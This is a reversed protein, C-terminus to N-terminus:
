RAGESAPEPKPRALERVEFMSVVPLYRVFLLMATLFLGISGLFTAYDWFTPTYLRSASPLFDHHLTVVVIMFRELWMGVVVLSSILVLALPSRRVAKFWLPQIAVVNCGVVGWWSWAYPGFFRASTLQEEFPEGGYWGIFLEMAYGYGTAIGTGLLVKALLELHADTVIAQLGFAHRLTVAILSVVAFGSFVAGLVFFPPLVTGHWGPEVSAAFLLGVGSHVSVVLPVALAALITYAQRWAAWHAATGRWGLAFIGYVQRRRRGGGGERLPSDRLTALDPIMGVYWFTASLLLYIIIATADWLLPSRFQPWLLMTNPYPLNWYFYWPRGMHILPYIAACTAALLTMTEAFRNLANRWHQRMLLLLASILTGANGIGIWWVYNIIDFGWVVPVNNGWIGPGIMALMVLAVVFTGLLLLAVAFAMLWRRQGPHDLAIASIGRTVSGYTEDPGLIRPGAAAIPAAGKALALDAAM